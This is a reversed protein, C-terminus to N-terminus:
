GCGCGPAFPCFKTMWAPCAPLAAPGAGAELLTLRRDAEVLIAPLDRFWIDYVMFKEGEAVEYFIVLRGRERGALACEFALRDFYHSFTQPLERREVLKPFRTARLITPVERYTGVRGRVSRLEVPIRGYAGPVGFYIARELEGKFGEKELSALRQEVPAEEAEGGTEAAEAARRRELFTKRPFVLDNLRFGERSADPGGERLRGLLAAALDPNEALSLQEVPVAREMPPAEACGCIAEYDCKREFWECRPLRSPDGTALAEQFLDRLKLMRARIAEVDSFRVEFAELEPPRGYQSRKYLVLRGAPRSTMACYMGLQDIYAPRMRVVDAPISGTTKLELPLDDFIDIKGVVGEHEVLQEVFEETSVARGFLDHFGTGAMMTQRKELPPQIEPHTWRFFSQRPNVLDTVSVRRRKSMRSVAATLEDKITRNADIGRVFAASFPPRPPAWARRPGPSARPDLSM